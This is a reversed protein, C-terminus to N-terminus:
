RVEDLYKKISEPNVEGYIAKVLKLDKNYLYNSPYSSKGFIDTFIGTTDTLVVVSGTESFEGFQKLFTRTSDANDGSILLLYPIHLAINSGALGALEYRCHDCDPHFRIILVPGTKIESSNFIDNELTMFEFAPLSATKVATEKNNQFAETIGQIFFIFSSIFAVVLITLILKKM